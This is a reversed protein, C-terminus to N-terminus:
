APRRGAVSAGFARTVWSLHMPISGQDDRAAEGLWNLTLTRCLWQLKTAFSDGLPLDYAQTVEAIFDYGGIGILGVFDHVAEGIMADTFDILGTLRGTAPDALLHEACIDHHLFRQPGDAAPEPVAGALYPEAAARVGAPLLPRVAGADARLSARLQAWSGREWPVPSSPMLRPAIRHLASLAAGIDAALRPLGRGGVRDAAVGPLRRYGVFPYPFRDSPLGVLEFLPVVSGLRPGVVALVELERMLWPVREARKPFRFIWEPGAAFLDHDWGEGFRRVPTADLGSFQAAILESVLAADLGADHSRNAV